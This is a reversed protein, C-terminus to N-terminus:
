TKATLRIRVLGETTVGFRHDSLVIQEHLRALEIVSRHHDADDFPYDLGDREPAAARAAIQMAAALHIVPKTDHWARREVNEPDSQGSQGVVLKSLENLSHRKMPSPLHAPLQTIGEEYFGLSMRSAIMRDRLRRKLTRLRRRCESEDIGLYIPYSARWEDAHDPYAAVTARLIRARLAEAAEKFRQEESVAPFALIALLTTGIEFPEMQNEDLSLIRLADM